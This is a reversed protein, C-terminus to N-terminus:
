RAAGKEFQFFLEAQRVAEDVVQEWVALEFNFIAATSITPHAAYIKRAFNLAEKTVCRRLPDTIPSYVKEIPRSINSQQLFSQYVGGCNRPKEKEAM